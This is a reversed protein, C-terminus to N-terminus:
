TEHNPGTPEPARVGPAAYRTNVQVAAEAFVTFGLGAVSIPILVADDRTFLSGQPQGIWLVREGPRLEKDISVRRSESVTQMTRIMLNAQNFRRRLVM